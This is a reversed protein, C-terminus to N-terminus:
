TRMMRAPVMPMALIRVVPCMTVVAGFLMSLRLLWL